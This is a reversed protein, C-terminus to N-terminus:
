RVGRVLYLDNLGRSYQYVYFQDDAAIFVRGVFMVGSPDPPAITRWPEIQGTIVHRRYLRAPFREPGALVLHGDASWHIPRGSEGDLRRPPQNATSYITVMNDPARVAVSRGDPSVAFPRPPMPPTIAQWPQEGERVYLHAVASEGKAQLWTFVRRGDRSWLAVQESTLESTLELGPNLPVVRPEGAGTPMLQLQSLDGRPNVLMWAGDPSLGRATYGEFSITDKGDTSRLYAGTGVERTEDILVRTGDASLGAIASRGFLDLPQEEGGDARGAIVGNWGAGTGVLAANGDPAVDYITLAGAIRAILRRTGRLNLAYLARDHAGGSESGTMWVERGDPSWAIGFVSSLSNDSVVPGGTLDLIDVADPGIIAVRDGNPSVRVMWCRAAIQRGIPFECGRGARNIAMQEGDPAWDGYTVNEVLARPTGGIAPVRVLTGPVAYPAREGTLLVALEQKGSVGLLFGPPIDLRKSEPRDLHTQYVRSPDAGWAASYYITKGDPGFRAGTVTGRQFTLPQYSPVSVDATARALVFGAAGLAIGALMAAAWRRWPRSGQRARAPMEGSPMRTLDSLHDRLSALERALDSTSAYRDGPDKSLCRDILWELPAPLDPRKSRPPELDEAITAALSEVLTARRFPRERTAMEYLLAGFAFQDARYDVPRGAAQEPSLYGVTGMVMGSATDRALTTAAEMANADLEPYVLKALGFDLIKAFGDGTVMVNGPKLDRHVIGAAHAKALGESIQTGLVLLRRISLPGEDLLERLSRGDIREMVIFPGADSTGVEYLTVIHPHNLASVAKAEREFRTLRDRDTAVDTPLVKIAVERGLRSDRALYVEGMGGAGLPGIVEYSGLRTGSALSM